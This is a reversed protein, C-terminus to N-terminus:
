TRLEDPPVNLRYLRGDRSVFGAHTLDRLAWTVTERSAGVMEALLEHTLPVDILVGRPSVRGHGRALQVLKARVREVQPFRAFNALSEERDAVAEILGGSVTAAARPEALLAEYSDRPVATLRTPVLATLQEAESPPVLFAGAGAVALVLRRRGESRAIVLVTGEEVVFFTALPLDSCCEPDVPVDVTPCTELVLRAHLRAPGSLELLLRSDVENTTAIYALVGATPPRIRPL